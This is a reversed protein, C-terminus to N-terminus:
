TESSEFLTLDSDILDLRAGANDGQIVFENNPQRNAAWAVELSISTGNACRIFASASDDVDFTGDGAEGWAELYTYDPRSGFVSRTVGSVETVQPFGLIYLALDIAHAGIDILAGGGATEKQTFWSGRG